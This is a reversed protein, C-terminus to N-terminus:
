FGLMNIFGWFKPLDILELGKILTDRYDYVGMNDQLDYFNNVADCL